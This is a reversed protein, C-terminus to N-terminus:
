RLSVSHLCPVGGASQFAKRLIPLFTLKEIPTIQLSVELCASVTLHNPNVPCHLCVTLSVSKVSARCGCLFLPECRAEGRARVDALHHMM